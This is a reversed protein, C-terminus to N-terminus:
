QGEESARVPQTRRAAAEQLRVTMRAELGDPYELSLRAAVTRATRSFLAITRFLATRNEEITAGAFTAELDRWTDEDLAARLGRGLVGPRWSWDRETGIRWELMRRLLDLKM